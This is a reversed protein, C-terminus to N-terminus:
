SRSVTTGDIKRAQKVAAKMANELTRFKKDGVGLGDVTARYTALNYSAYAALRGDDSRWEYRLVGVSFCRFTVGDIIKPKASTPKETM